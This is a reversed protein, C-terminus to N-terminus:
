TILFSLGVNGALEKFVCMCVSGQLPLCCIQPSSRAGHAVLKYYRGYGVNIDM